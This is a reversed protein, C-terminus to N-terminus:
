YSGNRRGLLKIKEGFFSILQSELWDIFYREASAHNVQILNLGHQILDKKEHYGLDGSVFTDASYKIVDKVFNRGSGPLFVVKGAKDKTQISDEVEIGLSLLLNYFDKFSGEFDFARGIGTGKRYRRVEYIEILPEEYPHFEEIIGVVMDLEKLSAIFEIRSEEIRNCKNMEGFRPNSGKLSCFQGTGQSSFACADYFGIRSIKNAALINLISKEYEIPVYTVVKYSRQYTRKFPLANSFGIKDLMYDLYSNATSDANTHMVILSKGETEMLELIKKVVPSLNGKSKLYPPHHVILADISGIDLETLDEVELAVAVVNLNDKGKLWVGSNDWDEQLEFSALRDLFDLLEDFSVM